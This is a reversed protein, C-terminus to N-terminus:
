PENFLFAMQQVKNHDASLRTKTPQLFLKLDKNKFRSFPKKIQKNAVFKAIIYMGKSNVWIYVFATIRINNSNEFLSDTALADSFM